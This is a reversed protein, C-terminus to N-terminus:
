LATRIPRYQSCNSRETTSRHWYSTVSLICDPRLIVVHVLVIVNYIVSELRNYM